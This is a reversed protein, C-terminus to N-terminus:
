VVSKRDGFVLVSAARLREIGEAGILLETRETRSM